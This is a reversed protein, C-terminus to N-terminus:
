LVAEMESCFMLENIEDLLMEEDAGEAELWPPLLDVEDLVLEMEDRFSLSLKFWISRIPEREDMSYVGTAM